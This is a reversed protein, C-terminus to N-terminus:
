KVTKGKNTKDITGLISVIGLLVLLWKVVSAWKSPIAFHKVYCAIIGGVLAPINEIWWLLRVDAVQIFTRGFPWLVM